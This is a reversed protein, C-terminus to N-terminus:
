PKPVDLDLYGPEGLSALYSVTRSVRTITELTGRERGESLIFRIPEHNTMYTWRNTEAHQILGFLIEVARDVHNVTLKKLWQVTHYGNGPILGIAIMGLLQDSLWVDDLVGLFCWHDIVGLELDYDAPNSAAKAAALRSEWYVLGRKRMHEPLADAPLSVQNGMFWMARRRLAAPARELFQDLLFPSATNWLVLIMMYEALRQQRFDQEAEQSSTSLREVEESYCDTLESMLAGVPGADNMLHSRWAAQRLDSDDVPLLATIHSKTWEADNYHLIRLYRGMIARPIRGAASHDSLQDKFARAIEPDDSIAALSNRDTLGPEFNLWRVLLVCLETAIGRFTQQATFYPYREYKEEFDDLEVAPPVLAWTAMVLSRVTERHEIGIGSAGLRLGTMLLESAAKCAWEWRADDGDSITSPDIADSAKSYTFEILKFISKWDVQKQNSATQQLGELLRRIYIPRLVAFQDAAASYADPQSTAAARIEQALASITLRSPEGPPQWEKLFEIVEAVPKTLLASPTLASEDPTEIPMRWANPDGAKEVAERRDPPLVSRWRWLLDRTCNLTFKAVDEPGPPAHREEEFRAKWWDLYEGPVADVARLIAAQSEPPLSPFWAIALAAYEPNCWEQTIFAENLLYSTALDPASAPALALVHLALRVFIRQENSALMGVVENTPAVGSRVLEEATQRVATILVDCVDFPPTNVHSVPNRSLLSYSSRGAIAVAQNLCDILLGLAGRGCAATLPGALLPLHHEYMHEGYHSKIQGNDGWLRFLERAVKIAAAAEGAVALKKVLDNPAQSHLVREDRGLWGVAMDALPAAEAPPLAALIATGEQLIDPHSADAVARLADIVGHRTSEDDSAAMRLLYNGAPWERYYRQEEKEEAFRPPEGLLGERMLAPLWDGTTLSQFFLAQLQMAGPIEKSFLKVARGRDTMAVLSKVRRMLAAYLGRLATMVARVVTDFPQQLTTRFEVDIELSDRFSRGGHAIQYGDITGIWLDAIDGNPDFGLRELIKRIQEKHNTRPALEKIARNIANDDYGIAKLRKRAEKQNTKEDPDQPAIAEMPAALIGRLMSDLERLAHAAMPKSANLAFTGASLRCFDEYRSAVARGLLDRIM